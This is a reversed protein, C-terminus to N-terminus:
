IDEYSRRGNEILRETDEAESYAINVNVLEKEIDALNKGDNFNSWEDHPQELEAHHRRMRPVMSELNTRQEADM